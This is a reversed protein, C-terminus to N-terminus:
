VLARVGDVLRELDSDDNYYHVASRVASEIGRAGFDLQASLRDMVSVNVRREALFRKVEEPDQESWGPQPTSLPYSEEASGVVAGDPSLAIAKVGSTGVDLGILVDPM